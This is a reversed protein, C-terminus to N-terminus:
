HPSSQVSLKIFLYLGDGPVFECQGMYKPAMGNLSAKGENPVQDLHPSCQGQPYLVQSAWLVDGSKLKVCWTM